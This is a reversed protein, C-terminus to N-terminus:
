RRVILNDTSAFGAKIVWWRRQRSIKEALAAISNIYQSGTPTSSFATQATKDTPFFEVTQYVINKNFIM